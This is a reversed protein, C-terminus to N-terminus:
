IKAFRELEAPVENAKMPTQQGWFYHIVKNTRRQAGSDASMIWVERLGRSAVQVISVGSESSIQVDLGLAEAQAVTKRQLTSLTTNM